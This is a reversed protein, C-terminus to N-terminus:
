VNEAPKQLLPSPAMGSADTQSEYARALSCSAFLSLRARNRTKLVYALLEVRGQLNAQLKPIHRFEAKHPYQPGGTHFPSTYPLLCPLFPGKRPTDQM